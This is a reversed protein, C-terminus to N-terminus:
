RAATGSGEKKEAAILQRVISPFGSLEIPKQAHDVILGNCVITDAIHTSSPRELRCTRVTLPGESNSEGEPSYVTERSEIRILDSDEVRNWTGFRVVFGDKLNLRVQKAGSEVFPATVEAYVGEAYLIALTGRASRLNEGQVGRVSTWKLSTVFIRDPDPDLEQAFVPRGSLLLAIGLVLLIRM